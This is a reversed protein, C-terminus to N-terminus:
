VDERELQKLEKDIREKERRLRNRKSTLSDGEYLKDDLMQILKGRILPDGIYDIKKYLADKMEYLGESGEFSIQEIIENVYKIAYNGVTKGKLFFADNLIDYINRCFTQDHVKNDQYIGHEQDNQLFVINESPVNSLCLPSHTSIIIQVNYARFSEKIADIINGVIDRQWDPHCLADVEDICLLVNRKLYLRNTSSIDGMRSLWYLWSMINQFAREGSSLYLNDVGLYRLIFSGYGNFEASLALRNNYELCKKVLSIYGVFQERKLVYGTKYALDSIPVVNDQHQVGAMSKEFDGIENIANKFYETMPCTEGHEIIVKKIHEYLHEIGDYDAIRIKCDRNALIYEGIFNVKLVYIASEKAKSEDCLKALNRINRHEEGDVHMKGNETFDSYLLMLGTAKVIFYSKELIPAVILGSGDKNYYDDFIGACYYLDCLQQYKGPLMSNKLCASYEDFATLDYRRNNEPSIFDFFVDSVASLREPTFSMQDIGAHTGVSGGVMVYSSNTMYVSSVGFLGNCCILDNSLRANGATYFVKDIKKIHEAKITLDAERINTIVCYNGNEKVVYLCRETIEKERSYPMYEKRTEENQANCTLLGLNEMLTTKGSGNSGVLVSVSSVNGNQMINLKGTASIHLCYKDEDHIEMRCKVEPSFNFGQQRIRERYEVWYYMIEFM